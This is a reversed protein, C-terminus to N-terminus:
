ETTRDFPTQHPYLNSLFASVRDASVQIGMHQYIRWADRMYAVAAPEDARKVAVLGLNELALAAVDPLDFERCGDLSLNLANVAEDLRGQTIRLKALNLLSVPRAREDASEIGLVLEREAGEWDGQERMVIGMADHVIRMQRVLRKVTNESADAMQAQIQDLLPELQERALAYEGRALNITALYRQAILIGFQDNMETFMTLASRVEAEAPPYHGREMELWGLESHIMAEQERNKLEQAAKLCLHELREYESWYGHYYLDETLSWFRAVWEMEGLAFCEEVCFLINAREDARNLVSPEAQFLDLWARAAMYVVGTSYFESLESSSEM